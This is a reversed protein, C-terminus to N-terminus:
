GGDPDGLKRRADALIAHLQHSRAICASGFGIMVIASFIATLGNAYITVAAYYITVAGAILCGLEEWTLGTARDKAFGFIGVLASGTGIFLGASWLVTGVPGVVAQISGPRVAGFALGPLSYIFSSLLMFMQFPHRSRIRESTLPMM